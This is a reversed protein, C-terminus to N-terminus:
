RGPLEGGAVMAGGGGEGAGREGRAAHQEPADGRSPLGAEGKRREADEGEGAQAAVADANEEHRSGAGDVIERGGPM